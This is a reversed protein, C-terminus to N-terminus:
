SEDSSNLDGSSFPFLRPMRQRADITRLRQEGTWDEREVCPAKPRPVVSPARCQWLAGQLESWIIM